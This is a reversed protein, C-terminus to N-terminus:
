GHSVRPRKKGARRKRRGKTSKLLPFICPILLVAGNVLMGISPGAKVSLATGMILLILAPVIGAILLGRERGEGRTCRFAGACGAVLATLTEGIKVAESGITGKWVLFAQFATLILLVAVSVAAGRWIFTKGVKKKKSM